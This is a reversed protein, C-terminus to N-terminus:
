MKFFDKFNISMESFIEDTSLYNELIERLFLKIGGRGRRHHSEQLIYVVKDNGFGLVLVSTIWILKLSKFLSVRRM